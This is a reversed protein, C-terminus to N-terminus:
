TRCENKTEQEKLKKALQEHIHSKFGNEFAKIAEKFAKSKGLKNKPM